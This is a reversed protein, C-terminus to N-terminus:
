WTCKTDFELEEGNSDLLGHLDIRNPNIVVRIKIGKKLTEM